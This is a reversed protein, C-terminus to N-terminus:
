QPMMSEPPALLGMWLYGAGVLILVTTGIPQMYTIFHRRFSSWFWLLILPTLYAFRVVWSARYAETVYYYDYIAFLNIMVLGLIAGTRIQRLSNRAYHLRFEQELDTPM